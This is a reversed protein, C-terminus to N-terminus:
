KMLKDLQEVIIKVAEKDDEEFNRVLSLIHKIQKNHEIRAKDVALEWKGEIDDVYIIFAETTYTISDGDIIAVRLVGEKDFYAGVKYNSQPKIASCEDNKLKILVDNFSLDRNALVLASEHVRSIRTGNETTLVTMLGSEHETMDCITLLQGIYEIERKWLCTANREINKPYVLDGARDLTYGESMLQHLPKIRVVDGVKFNM